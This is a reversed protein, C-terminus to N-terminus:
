FSSQISQSFWKSFYGICFISFTFNSIFKKWKLKLTSHFFQAQVFVRKKALSNQECAATESRNKSKRIPNKELHNEWDMWIDNPLTFLFGSALFRFFLLLLFIKRRWVVWRKAGNRTEAHGFERTWNSNLSWSFILVSRIFLCRRLGTWTRQTAFVRRITFLLAGLYYGNLSQRRSNFLHLIKTLYSM